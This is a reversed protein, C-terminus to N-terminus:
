REIIIGWRHGDSGRLRRALDYEEVHFLALYAEKVGGSNVARQQNPVGLGDGRTPGEVSPPNIRERPRRVAFVTRRAREISVDVHPADVLRHAIDGDLISPRAADARHEPHARLRQRTRARIPAHPRPLDREVRSAPTHIIM